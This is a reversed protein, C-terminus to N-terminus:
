STSQIELWMSTPQSSESENQSLGNLSIQESSVGKELLRDRIAEADKIPESGSYVQVSVHDQPFKSLVHGIADVENSNGAKFKKANLEIRFGHSTQATEACHSLAEYQQNPTVSVLMLIPTLWNVVVLSAVRM